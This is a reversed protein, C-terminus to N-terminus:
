STGNELFSVVLQDGLTTLQYRDSTSDYSVVGYRLIDEVFTDGFTEDHGHPLHRVYKEMVDPTLLQLIRRSTLKEESGKACVILAVETYAQQQEQSWFPNLSEM